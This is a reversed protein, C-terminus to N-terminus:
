VILEGEKKEKKQETQQTQNETEEEKKGISNKREFMANEVSAHIYNDTTSSYSHGLFEKIESVSWGFINALHTARSHRLWHTSFAKNYKKLEANIKKRITPEKFSFLYEAQVEKKFEILKIIADILIQETEYNSKKPLPNNIYVFSHKKLCPSIITYKNKYENITNMKIGEIEYVKGYIKIKTKRALERVRKGFFYQFAILSKTIGKANKVINIITEYPIIHTTWYERKKTKM